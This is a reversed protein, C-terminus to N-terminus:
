YPIIYAFKDKQLTLELCKQNYEERTLFIVKDFLDYNDNKVFGEILIKKTNSPVLTAVLSDFMVFIDNERSSMALTDKLLQTNNKVYNNKENDNIPLDLSRITVRPNVEYVGNIKNDIIKEISYLFVDYEENLYASFSVATLEQSSIKNLQKVIFFLRKRM